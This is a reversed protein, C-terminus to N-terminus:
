RNPGSTGATEALLRRVRDVYSPADWDKPGIYREVVVGERDVLFSEPFRFTQYERAVAKDVDRLVPFSLGLRAAFGSVDAEADDASIALLEFGDPRLEGYLREMAPMEEECPKCWTAWFNILVVRGRLERLSVPTGDLAPLRLDPADSGRGLPPPTAPSTWIAFLGAAAVALGVLWPGLRSTM